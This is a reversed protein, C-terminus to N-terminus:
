SRRKAVDRCSSGATTGRIRKLDIAFLSLHRIYGRAKNIDNYYFFGGMERIGALRRDM